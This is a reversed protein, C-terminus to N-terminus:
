RDAARDIQAKVELIPQASVEIIGRRPHDLDLIVFMLLVVLAVMVFTARSPRHGSLGASYGIMGGSVVFAGFLLILVLEPVHRNVEAILSANADIMENLSQVYLGTTAPSPAARSLAAAHEWLRGQLRGAEANLPGREHRTDWTLTVTRARTDAYAGFLAQAEARPVDALLGSRLFATGIANAEQVVAESRSNFRDLSISFTFGLMLALMGLLTTQMADTQSKVLTSTRTAFRKGLRHGVEMALAMLGLIAIAVGGSPYDYFIENM